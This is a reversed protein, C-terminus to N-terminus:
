FNFFYNMNDVITYKKDYFNKFKDKNKYLYTEIKSIVFGPIKIKKTYLIILENPIDREPYKTNVLLFTILAIYRSMNAINHLLYIIIDTKNIFDTYKKDFVISKYVNDLEDILEIFDIVSKKCINYQYCNLENNPLNDFINEINMDNVPIKNQSNILKKYDYLSDLDNIRSLGIKDFVNNPSNYIKSIYYNYFDYANDLNKNRIKININEPLYEFEDILKSTKYKLLLYSLEDPTTNFDINKLFKFYYSGIYMSTFRFIEYVTDNLPSFEILIRLISTYFIIIDSHVTTSLSSNISNSYVINEYGKISSFGYDFIQALYKVNQSNHTNEILPIIEPIYTYKDQTNIMINDCHLDNHVFGIKNYAFIISRLIQTIINLVDYIKDKSNNEIINKLYYKFTKGKSYESLLNIDINKSINLNAIFKTPNKNKKNASYSYISKNQYEKLTNKLSSKSFKNLMNHNIDYSIQVPSNSFFMGYIATFNPTYQRVSLLLEFGVIFERLIENYNEFVNDSKYLDKKIINFEHDNNRFNIVDVSGNAGKAVYDITTNNFITDSLFYDNLALKVYKIKKDMDYKYDYIYMLYSYKFRFEISDEDYFPTFNNLINGVMCSFKQLTLYDDKQNDINIYNEEIDTFYNIMDQLNTNYKLKKCRKKFSQLIKYRNNNEILKKDNKYKDVLYFYNPDVNPGSINYLIDRLEKFDKFLDM